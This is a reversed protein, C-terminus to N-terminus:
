FWDRRRFLFLMIGAVLLCISWFAPYGWVKELEPFHRFNMGYVGALFTLPIFITGIITLVKMIENMRLSISSMYSETMDATLERYTEIMDIIQVIHDYLDRLYVRTIDSVCEHPERQLASIVERTPWAARRLQLLDRKIQHIENFVTRQPHELVQDELEELQNGFHELIPFCHDIISDLLSYMLFSADNNRLRSGKTSIRQRIPDWVDGQSEQFTLITKHGLFISIQENTLREEQIQLMRVIIFLRARMEGENGGYNDVKPRQPMHLLDEVALPHLEYKTALAHIAEMDSLGDVNIWRVMSWPPRHHGLFIKLDDIEQVLVDDPSYDVCTIRVQEAGSPLRVIEDHEVGPAAGPMRKTYESRTRM